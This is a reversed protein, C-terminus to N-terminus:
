GRATFTDWGTLDKRIQVKVDDLSKDAEMMSIRAELDEIHGMARKLEDAVIDRNHKLSVWQIAAYYAGTGIIALILLCLFAYLM